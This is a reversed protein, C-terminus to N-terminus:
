NRRDFSSRLLSRSTERPLPNWATLRDASAWLVNADDVHWEGATDDAYSLRQLLQGDYWRFMLLQTGAGASAGRPSAVIVDNRSQLSWDPASPLPQEWLIQGGKVSVARLTAQSAAALVHNTAATQRPPDNLPQDALGTAWLRGGTQSDLGVLLVGDVLLTLQDSPCTLWPDAHAHSMGGRYKWFENRDPNWGLVQRDDTM